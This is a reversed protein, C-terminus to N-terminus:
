LNGYLKRRIRNRLILLCIGSIYSEKGGNRFIRESNMVTICLLIILLYMLKKLLTESFEDSCRSLVGSHVTGKFCFSGSRNDRSYFGTVNPCGGGSSPIRFTEGVPQYAYPVSSGSSFGSQDPFYLDYAGAKQEEEIKKLAKESEEPDIKRGVTKRVRKWRM